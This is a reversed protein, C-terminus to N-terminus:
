AIYKIYKMEKFDFNLEKQLVLLIDEIHESLIQEELCLEKREDREFTNFDELSMGRRGSGIPSEFNKEIFIELKDKDDFLYFKYDEAYGSPSDILLFKKKMMPLYLTSIGAEYLKEQLSKERQFIYKKDLDVELINM